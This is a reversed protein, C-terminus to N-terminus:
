MSYRSRIDYIRREEEPLSGSKRSIETGKYKLSDILCSCQKMVEDLSEREATYSFCIHCPCLIEEMLTKLSSIIEKSLKDFNQDLNEIFQSYDIGAM